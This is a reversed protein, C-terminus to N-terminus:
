PVRRTVMVTPSVDPLMDSAYETSLAAALMIVLALLPPVPDPDTVTCPDPSPM